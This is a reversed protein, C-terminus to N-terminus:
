DQSAMAYMQGQRVMFAGQAEAEEKAQICPIGFFKLLQKADKVMESTIRSTAQAYKMAEVLDGREIAEKRKTEALKKRQKRTEIEEEKFKPPKGDFIFVPKVRYPLWNTLRYFLGSLHSTVNGKSDKLYGGWTSQHRIPALFAYIMNYADFGIIKNSLTELSIEHRCSSILKGIQTGM